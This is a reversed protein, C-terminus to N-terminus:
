WNLDFKQLVKKDKYMKLKDNEIIAYYGNEYAGPNIFTIGDCIYYDPRHTHGYFCYNIKKTKCKEILHNLTYKVDYINGHTILINKNDLEKYIEDDGHIDCNGKVFLINDEDLINFCRGYDGCHIVVDFLTTDFDIVRSHNDSLILIRM